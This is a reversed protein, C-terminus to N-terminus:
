QLSVAANLGIRLEGAYYGSPDSVGFYTGDVSINGVLNYRLGASGLYARDAVLSTLGAGPTVFPISEVEAIATLSATLPLTAGLFGEFTLNHQMGDVRLLNPFNFNSSAGWLSVSKNQVDEIGLGVTLIMGSLVDKSAIVQARAFGTEYKAISLGQNYLEPRSAQIDYWFNWEANWGISSGLVVAVAPHDDTESLLKVKLGWSPQRRIRYLMTQVEGVNSFDIEALGGIGVIGRIRYIDQDSTFESTGAQFGVSNGPAVEATNGLTLRSVIDTSGSTQGYIMPTLVLCICAVLAVTKM